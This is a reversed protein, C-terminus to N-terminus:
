TSEMVGEVNVGGEDVSQRVTECNYYVFRRLWNHWGMCIPEAYHMACNCNAKRTVAIVASTQTPHLSAHKNVQNNSQAVIHRM